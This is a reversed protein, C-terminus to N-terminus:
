RKKRKGNNPFEMKFKFQSGSVTKGDKTYSYDEINDPILYADYTKGSKGKLGKMLIKKGDLLNKVQADNLKEGMARSLSMGCKGTCSAGFKGSVVEKGCKPCM